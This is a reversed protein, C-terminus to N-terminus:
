IASMLAFLFFFWSKSVMQQVLPRIAHDLSYRSHRAANPPSSAHTYTPQNQNGPRSSPSWVLHVFSFCPSCAASRAITWPLSQWLQISIENNYGLISARASRPWHVDCGVSVWLRSFIYEAQLLKQSAAVSFCDSCACRLFFAGRHAVLIGQAACTQVAEEAREILQYLGNNKWKSGM